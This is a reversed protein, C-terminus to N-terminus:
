KLLEDKHEDYFKARERPNQIANFRDFISGKVTAPEARTATASQDVTWNPCHTARQDQPKQLQPRATPKNDLEWLEMSLALHKDGNSTLAEIEGIIQANPGLRRKLEAMAGDIEWCMNPPRGAEIFKSAYNERSYENKKM